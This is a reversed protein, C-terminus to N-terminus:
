ASHTQKKLLKCGTMRKWLRMMEVPGQSVQLNSDRGWHRPESGKFCFGFKRVQEAHSARRQPFPNGMSRGPALVLSNVM